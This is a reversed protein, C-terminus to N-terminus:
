NPIDRAPPTATEVPSVTAAPPAATSGPTVTQVAPPAAPNAPAAADPAPATEPPPAPKKEPPFIQVKGDLAMLGIEVEMEPYRKTVLKRFERLAYHHSETEILKDTVKVLGYAVKAAGCDRHDLAIVRKMQYRDVFASFDEWFMKQKDKYQEAVAGIAAGELSLQRYKGALERGTMYATTLQQVRPDTCTLLVLEYNPQAAAPSVPLATALAAGAGLTLFRRRDFNGPMEGCCCCAVPHVVSPPM